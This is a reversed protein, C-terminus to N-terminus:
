CCCSFENLDPYMNGMKVRWMCNAEYFESLDPYMNLLKVKWIDVVKQRPRRAVFSRLAARRSEQQSERDRIRNVEAVFDDLLPNPKLPIWDGGSRTVLKKEEVKKEEEDSARVCLLKRLKGFARRLSKMTVIM